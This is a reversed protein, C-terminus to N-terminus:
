AGGHFLATYDVGPTAFGYPAAHPSAMEEGPEASPLEEGESPVGAPPAYRATLEVMEGTSANVAVGTLRGQHGLAGSHPQAAVPNGTVPPSACRDGAVGPALEGTGIATKAPSIRPTPASDFQERIASCLASLVEVMPAISGTANDEYTFGPAPPKGVRNLRYSEVAIRGALGSPSLLENIPFAPSKLHPPCVAIISQGSATLRATADKLDSIAKAVDGADRQFRGSHQALARRASQNQQARLEKQREQDQRECEVLAAVLLGRQNELQRLHDQAALAAADDGSQVAHLSLRSLAADAARLAETCLALRGEILARSSTAGEQAAMEM